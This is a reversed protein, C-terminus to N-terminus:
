EVSSNLYDRNVEVTEEGLQTDIHKQFMMKLTDLHRGAITALEDREASKEPTTHVLEHLLEIQVM